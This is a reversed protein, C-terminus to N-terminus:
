WVLRRTLRFTWSLHALIEAFAPSIPLNPPWCTQIGSQEKQVTFGPLVCLYLKEEREQCGAHHFYLGRTQNKKELLDRVSM